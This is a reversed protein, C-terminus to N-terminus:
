WVFVIESEHRLYSISDTFFLATMSVLRPSSPMHLRVQECRGVTHFMSVWGWSSLEPSQQLGLWGLVWSLSRSYSYCYFTSSFNRFVLRLKFTTCHLHTHLVLCSTCLATLGASHLSSLFKTWHLPPVPFCFHVFIVQYWCLSHSSITLFYGNWIIVFTVVSTVHPISSPDVM